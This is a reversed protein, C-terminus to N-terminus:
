FSFVPLDECGQDECTLAQLAVAPPSWVPAPAVPAATAAATASAAPPTATEAPPPPVPVPAPQAPPTPATPPLPAATGGDCSTLLALLPALWFRTMISALASPSTQM